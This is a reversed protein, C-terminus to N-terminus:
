ANHQQDGISNEINELRNVLDKLAGVTEVALLYTRESASQYARWLFVIAVLLAVLLIILIPNEIKELANNIQTDMNLYYFCNAM